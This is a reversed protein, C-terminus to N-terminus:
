TIIDYNLHIKKPGQLWQNRPNTKNLLVWIVPSFRVTIQHDFSDRYRLTDPYILYYESAQITILCFQLKIGRESTAVNNM